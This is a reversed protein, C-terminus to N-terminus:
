LVNSHQSVQVSTFHQTFHFAMKNVKYAPLRLKNIITNRGYQVADTTM